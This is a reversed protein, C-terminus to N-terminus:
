QVCGRWVDLNSAELIILPLFPVFFFFSLFLFVTEYFHREHSLTLLPPTSVACIYVGYWFFLLFFFFSLSRCAENGLCSLFPRWLFGWRLVRLFCRSLCRCTPTHTHMYQLLSSNDCDADSTITKKKKIDVSSCLQFLRPLCLCMWVCVRRCTADFRLLITDFGMSPTLLIAAPQRAHSSFSSSACLFFLPREATFFFFFKVTSFSATLLPFFTASLSLFFFFSVCFFALQAGCSCRLMTLHQLHLHFSM